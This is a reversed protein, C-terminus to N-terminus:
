TATAHSWDAFAANRLVRLARRSTLHRQTSFTNYVATHSTLFRQASEQSKFGQMKRERRRVALHSNEARNNDRLRGPRHRDELGLIKLAHAYSGLGDTTVVDPWIPQTALLHMLFKIATWGDRYPNMLHQV